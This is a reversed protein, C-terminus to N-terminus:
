SIPSLWVVSQHPLDQRHCVELGAATIEEAIEDGLFVHEYAFLGAEGRQLVLLDGDEVQWDSRRWRGVAQAWPLGAPPSSSRSYSLLIRGNPNLHARVKNLVEIRRRRGPIYSYCFYSLMIADFVGPLAVDEVYGDIVTTAFGHGALARRATAAAAAAPEVGVVDCGMRALPMIDRGTGCGIVLVRNGPRVFRDVFAQEWPFLGMEIEIPSAHFDNWSQEIGARLDRLPMLGIAVSSIRRGAGECWRGVTVLSRRLWARM